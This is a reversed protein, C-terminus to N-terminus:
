FSSDNEKNQKLYILFDTKQAKFVEFSIYLYNNGERNKISAPFCFIKIYLIHFFWSEKACSSLLSYGLQQRFNLDSQNM